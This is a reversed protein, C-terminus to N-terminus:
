IQFTCHCVFLPPSPDYGSPDDTRSVQAVATPPTVIGAFAAAPVDLPAAPAVTPEASKVCPCDDHPQAPASDRECECAPEDADHPCFCVGPPLLLALTALLAPLVRLM